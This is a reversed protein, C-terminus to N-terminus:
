GSGLLWSFSFSIAMLMILKNQLCFYNVFFFTFEAKFLGGFLDKMKAFYNAFNPHHFPACTQSKAEVNSFNERYEHLCVVIKHQEGLQAVILNCNLIQNVFFIAIHFLFLKPYFFTTTSVLNPRSLSKGNWLFRLTDPVLVRGVSGM